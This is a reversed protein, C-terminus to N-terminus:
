SKPNLAAPVKWPGPLDLFVGDACGHLDEPFGLAEIDRQVTSVVGALGNASFEVAAEEARQRHFEFTHVRGGPAVARALATTLSGSGTGSELVACAHTLKPNLPM